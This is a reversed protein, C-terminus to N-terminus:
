KQENEASLFVKIANHIQSYSLDFSNLADGYKHKSLEDSGIDISSKARDLQFEIFKHFSSFTENTIKFNPLQKYHSKTFDYFKQVVDQLNYLPDIEETRGQAISLLEDEHEHMYKYVENHYYIIDNMINNKSKRSEIFEKIYEKFKKM